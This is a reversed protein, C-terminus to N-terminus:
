LRHRRRRGKLKIGLLTLFGTTVMVVSPPVPVVTADTTVWASLFPSVSWHGVTAGDEPPYWVWNLRGATYRQDDYPLPISEYRAITHIPWDITGYASLFASTIDTESYLWLDLMESRSAMHWGGAINGYTPSIAGIASVQESYLMNVFDQLNWYWYKGTVTDLTVKEGNGLYDHVILDASATGTLLLVAAVLFLLFRKM